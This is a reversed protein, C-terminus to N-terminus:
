ISQTILYGNVVIHSGVAPKSITVKPVFGPPLYVPPDFSKTIYTATSAASQYIFYDIVGNSVYVTITKANTPTSGSFNLELEVMKRWGTNDELSSSVSSEYAAEDLQYTAIDIAKYPLKSIAM